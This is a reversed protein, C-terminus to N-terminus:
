LLAGPMPRGSAAIACRHVTRAGSFFAKCPDLPHKGVTVDIGRARWLNCVRGQFKVRM